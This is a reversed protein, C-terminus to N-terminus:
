STLQLPFFSWECVRVADIVIGWGEPCVADEIFTNWAAAADGDGFLESGGASGSGGQGFEDANGRFNTLAVIGRYGSTTATSPWTYCLADVQGNWIMAKDDTM